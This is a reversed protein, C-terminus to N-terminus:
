ASVATLYETQDINAVCWKLARPHGWFINTNGRVRIQYKAFEPEEAVARWDGARAHRRNNSAVGCAERMDQDSWLTDGDDPLQALAKRIAIRVRTAFDFKEALNAKSLGRKAPEAASKGKRGSM